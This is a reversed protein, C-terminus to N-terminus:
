GATVLLLQMGGGIGFVGGEVWGAMLASNNGFAVTQPYFDPEEPRLVTWNTGDNSVVISM